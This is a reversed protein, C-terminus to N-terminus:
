LLGKGGRIIMCIVFGLFVCPVFPLEYRRGKHFLLVAIVALVAAFLSSVWLLVLNEWFGLFVGTVMILIADGKGISEGTAASIAYLILGIAAGGLISLLSVRDSVLHLCLGFIASLILPVLGISKEKIDMFSFYGLIGMLSWM